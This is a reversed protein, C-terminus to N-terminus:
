YQTEEQEAAQRELTDLLNQLFPSRGTPRTKNAQRLTEEYAAQFEDIVDQVGKENGDFYAQILTPTADSLIYDGFKDQLMDPTINQREMLVKIDPLDKDRTFEGGLEIGSLSTDVAILKMRLLDKEDLVNILINGIKLAPDFHLDGTAYEFDELSTGDLMGDNNIWGKGLGHKFGIENAINEFRDPLRRGVYDIDTTDNPDRIERLMLAFGGIVNLSVPPMKQELLRESLETVAKGMPTQKFKDTSIM